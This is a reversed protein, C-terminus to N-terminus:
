SRLCHKRCLSKQWHNGLLCANKAKDIISSLSTTVEGGKIINKLEGGAVKVAKDALSEVRVIEKQFALLKEKEAPSLTIAPIKQPPEPAKENSCGCLAMIASILAVLLINKM